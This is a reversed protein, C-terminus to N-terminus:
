SNRHKKNTYNKRIYTITEDLGHEALYELLHLILKDTEPHIM